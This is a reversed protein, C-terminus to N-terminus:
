EGEEWLQVGEDAIKNDVVIPVPWNRSPSLYFRERKLVKTKAGAMEIFRRLTSRNMRLEVIKPDDRLIDDIKHRELKTKKM